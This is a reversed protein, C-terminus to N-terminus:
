MLFVKGLTESYSFLHVISFSFSNANQVKLLIYLKNIRRNKFSNLKFIEEVSIQIHALIHIDINM